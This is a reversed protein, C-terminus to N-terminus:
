LGPSMYVVNEHEEVINKDLMRWADYIIAPRNMNSLIMSIDWDRYTEHNNAVILIDIKDFGGELEVAQVGEILQIESKQVIPDFGKILCKALSRLENM